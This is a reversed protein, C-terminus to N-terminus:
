NSPHVRTSFNGNAARLQFKVTTTNGATLTITSPSVTVQNVDPLDNTYIDSSDGLLKIPFDLKISGYGITLTYQIGSL